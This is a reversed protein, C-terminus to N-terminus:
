SCWLLEQCSCQNVSYGIGGLSRYHHCWVFYSKKWTQTMQMWSIISYLTFVCYIHLYWAYYISGNLIWNWTLGSGHYFTAHVYHKSHFISGIIISSCQDDALKKVFRGLCFFISEIYDSYACVANQPVIACAYVWAIAICLCEQLASVSFTNHYCWSLLKHSIFYFDLSSVTHSVM